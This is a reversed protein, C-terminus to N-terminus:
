KAIELIKKKLESFELSSIISQNQLEGIEELDTSLDCSTLPKALLQDKKSEFELSTLLGKNQLQHLEFLKHALHPVSGESADRPAPANIMVSPTPVPMAMEPVPTAPSLPPASRFSLWFVAGAAGAAFILGNIAGLMAVTRELRAVRGDLELKDM